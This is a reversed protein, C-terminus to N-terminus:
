PTVQIDYAFAVSRSSRNLVKLVYNGGALTGASIREGFSHTSATALPPCPGPSLPPLVCEGILALDLDDQPDSWNLVVEVKAPSHLSFRAADASLPQDASGAAVLGYGQFHLVNPEPSPTPAAPTESSGGCAVVLLLAGPLLPTLGRPGM